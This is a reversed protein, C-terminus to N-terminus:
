LLFDSFDVGLALRQLVCHFGVARPDLLELLQLSVRLGVCFGLGDVVLQLLDFEFLAPLLKLLVVFWFEAAEVQSLAFEGAEMFGKGYFGPLRLADFELCFAFGCGGLGVFEPMFHLLDECDLVQDVGYQMFPWFM